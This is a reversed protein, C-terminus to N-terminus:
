LGLNLSVSLRNEMSDKIYGDKATESRWRGHKKFLRDPVGLSAAASAGGTRLSHLGFHKPDVGISRLADKFLELCRSYSLHNNGARLRYTNVAKCFNLPRILFGEDSEDNLQAISCYKRLMSVPCTLSNTAAVLVNAGQRYIDTKSKVIFINAHSDYIQVDCRRINILEEHRLFGAYSLLIMTCLRIDMLNDSNGFKNVIAKLIEPTIPEKKVIPKVLRRKLGQLVNHLFKSDCPNRNCEPLCDHRWKISYFTAEIRSYPAKENYLHIFYRSIDNIDAPISTVKNQECWNEWASFTKDYKYATSSARSAKLIESLTSKYQKDEEDKVLKSFSSHQSFLLPWFPASPWAPIVLTGEAHCSRLHRLVDGVLYTPPVLWNNEARWDCAFADVHQVCPTWYKSNFKPLRTNLEDAFRDVTHPGWINDIFQFFQPSVGWDDFDIERSIEDARANQDRPVWQVELSICHQMCFEFINLSLQLLEEVMSGKNVVSVVGKNDTFLKVVKGSLNPAFAQLSLFVAKLERWTSSKLQEDSDWNRQSIMEGSCSTSWAGCGISSADTYVLVNPISYEFLMRKNMKQVRAKWFVLEEIVKSTSSIRYIHDWYIRNAIELHLFRSKLQSVGGVVPGLSIIKGTVSALKRACVLPFRKQVDVISNLLDQIRRDTIKISCEASDWELGLWTLYQTPKWVSKEVNPVLGAAILDNKVKESIKGCLEESQARCWGDDLYLVVFFGQKRWHKVLPRLCKTFLFPATSCGFPLVLFSYYKTCGGESWAFSLYKCHDPYIEIHHYGSKLDFSFLFDGKELFSAAVKWDEFKIKDKWLFQNVYRLDLILRKKGSKQVSVSLPNVVLPIENCESILGKDLLEAIAQSVFESNQFASKNNKLVNRPPTSILPLKYGNSIIDLVVPNAGINKWFGIAAKLRGKVIPEDNGQEYDYYNEVYFDM